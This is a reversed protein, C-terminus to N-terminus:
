PPQPCHNPPFHWFPQSRGGEHQLAAPEQCVDLPGRSMNGSHEHPHPIAGAQKDFHEPHLEPLVALFTDDFTSSHSLRTNPKWSGMGDSVCAEGVDGFICFLYMRFLNNLGKMDLFRVLANGLGVFAIIHLLKHIGSGINFASGSIISPGM